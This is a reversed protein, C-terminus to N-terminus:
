SLLALLREVFGLVINLQEETLREVYSHLKDKKDM